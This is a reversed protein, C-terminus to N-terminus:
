RSLKDFSFIIFLIKVCYGTLFSCAASVLLLGTRYPTYSLDQVWTFTFICFGTFLLLINVLKNNIYISALNIAFVIIIFEILAIKLSIGWALNNKITSRLQRALCWGLEHFCIFSIIQTIFTILATTMKHRM